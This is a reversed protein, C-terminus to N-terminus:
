RIPMGERVQTAAANEGSKRRQMFHFPDNSEANDFAKKRTRRFIISCLLLYTIWIMVCFCDELQLSIINYDFELANAVKICYVIIAWGLRTREHRLLIM